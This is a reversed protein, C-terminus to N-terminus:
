KKKHTTVLRDSYRRNTIRRIEVIVGSYSMELDFNLDANKRRKKLSRM